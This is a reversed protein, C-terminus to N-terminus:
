GGEPKYNVYGRGIEFHYPDWGLTRPGRGPVVGEVRGFRGGWRCLEHQREWIQGLTEYEDGATHKWRLAEGDVIVLDIALWDQHQSYKVQSKGAALLKAQEEATRHFYTCVLVIEEHQAHELLAGLCDMFLARAKTKTM